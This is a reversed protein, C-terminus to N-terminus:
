QPAGVAVVVPYASKWTLPKVADDVDDPKVGALAAAERAEPAFGPAYYVETATRPTGAKGTHGITFGAATLKGALADLAPGKGARADLLDVPCLIRKVAAFPEKGELAAARGVEPNAGAGLGRSGSRGLQIKVSAKNAALAQVKSHFEHNVRYYGDLDFLQIRPQNQDAVTGMFAAASQQGQLEARIEALDLPMGLSGLKEVMAEGRTDREKRFEALRARLEPEEPDLFLGLVHVDDGDCRTSLESATVTM